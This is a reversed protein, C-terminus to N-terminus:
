RLSSRARGAAPLVVLLPWVPDGTAYNAIIGALAIEVAGHDRLLLLEDFAGLVDELGCPYAFHPRKGSVDSPDYYGNREFYFEDAPM